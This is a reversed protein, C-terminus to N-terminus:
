FHKYFPECITLDKRGNEFVYDKGNLEMLTRVYRGLMVDGFAIVRLEAPSELEAVLEESEVIIDILDNTDEWDVIESQEDDRVIEMADTFGLNGDHIRMVMVTCLVIGALITYKSM